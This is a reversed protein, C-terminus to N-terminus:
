EAKQCVLIHFYALIRTEHFVNEDLGKRPRFEGSRGPGCGPWCRTQPWRGRTDRAGATVRQSQCSAPKGLSGGPLGEGSSPAGDRQFPAEWPSRDGAGLGPLIGMMHFQGEDGNETCSGTANLVNVRGHLWGWWGGVPSKMKCFNRRWEISVARQGEGLRPWWRGVKQGM